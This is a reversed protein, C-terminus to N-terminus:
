LYITVSFIEILHQIKKNEKKREENGNEINTAKAQLSRLHFLIQKNEQISYLENLDISCKNVNSFKIILRLFAPSRFAISVCARMNVGNVSVCHEGINSMLPM